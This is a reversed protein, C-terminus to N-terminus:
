AIISIKICSQSEDVVSLSNDGTMTQLVEQFIIHGTLSKIVDDVQFSFVDFNGKRMGILISFFVIREYVSLVGCLATRM